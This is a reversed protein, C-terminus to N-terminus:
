DLVPTEAGSRKPAQSPSEPRLMARIEKLMLIRPSLRFRDDQIIRDFDRLLAATQEPLNRDALPTIGGSLSRFNASEGSSPSPNSGDTGPRIGALHSSATARRCSAPSL